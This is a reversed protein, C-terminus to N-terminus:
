VHRAKRALIASTRAPLNAAGGKIKTYRLSVTSGFDPRITGAGELCLQNDIWLAWYYDSQADVPPLGNVQEIEYGLYGPFGPTKSYGYYQLTYQFPDPTKVTQALVFAREMLQIVNMEFEFPVDKTFIVKGREDQIKFTVGALTKM